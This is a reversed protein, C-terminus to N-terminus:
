SSYRKEWKQEEKREKGKPKRKPIIKFKCFLQLFYFDFVFSLLFFPSSPYTTDINTDPHPIICNQLINGNPFVPCVM